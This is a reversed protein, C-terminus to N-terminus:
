EGEKVGKLHELSKGQLSEPAHDLPRTFGDFGPSGLAPRRIGGRTAGTGRSSAAGGLSDAFRAVFDGGQTHREKPDGLITNNM